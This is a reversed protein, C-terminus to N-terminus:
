GDDVSAIEGVYYYGYSGVAGYGRVGDVRWSLSRSFSSVVFLDGAFYGASRYDASGADKGIGDRVTELEAIGDLLNMLAEGSEGYILNLPQYFKGSGLSLM